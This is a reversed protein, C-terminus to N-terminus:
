FHLRCINSFLFLDNHENFACIGPSLGLSVLDSDRPNLGQSRDAGPATAPHVLRKWGLLSSFGPKSSKADRRYFKVEHDRQRRARKLDLVKSDSDHPKRMEEAPVWLLSAKKGERQQPAAQPNDASYM